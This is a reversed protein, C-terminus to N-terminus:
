LSRRRRLWGVLGVGLSGLVVAGPAPIPPAGGIINGEITGRASSGAINNKLLNYLDTSSSGTFSFDIDYGSIEGAQLGDLVASYGPPTLSTIDLDDKSVWYALYTTGITISGGNHLAATMVTGMGGTDDTITLGATPHLGARIISGNDVINFLTMSPIGVLDLYAADGAISNDDVEIGTPKFSLTWTGGSEALTWSPATGPKTSFHLSPTAMAASATLIFVLTGFLLKKM